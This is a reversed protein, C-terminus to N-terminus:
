IAVGPIEIQGNLAATILARRREQLLGVQRELANQLAGLKATEEEVYALVARQSHVDLDPIPISLAKGLTLRARTAGEALRSAANIGAESSLYLAIYRADAKAPDLRIRYCDAKVMAPGVDPLVCARGVAHNEDGLGAIILDGPIAHHRSLTRWYDLDIFAADTDIWLGSGVNGLRIVRAGEARYHESKLSSGFPGDCADLVARRLPMLKSM